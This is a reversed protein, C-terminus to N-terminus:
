RRKNYAKLAYINATIKIKKMLLRILRALDSFQKWIQQKLYTQSINSMIKHSLQNHLNPQIANSITRKPKTYGTKPAKEMSYKTYKSQNRLKKDM